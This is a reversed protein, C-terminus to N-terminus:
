RRQKAPSVNRTAPMDVDRSRARPPPRVHRPRRQNQYRESFLKPPLCRRPNPRAHVAATQLPLRVDPQRRASAYRLAQTDARV